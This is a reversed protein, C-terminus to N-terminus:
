EFKVLIKVDHKNVTKTASISLEHRKRRSNNNITENNNNFENNINSNGLKFENSSNKDTISINKNFKNKNFKYGNESLINKSESLIIKNTNNDINKNESLINKHELLINKNESLINIDINKNKKYIHRLSNNMDKEIDKLNKEVYDLINNEICWRFFNLQGVTTIIEKNEHDYFSIRERRCFPDFQKKSYAKLQSKYDLYVMFKKLNNDKDIIDYTINNKKSFNTVFWDLIRLSIPSKQYIIKLMKNLNIKFKFFHTLSLMLLDQKSSMHNIHGM